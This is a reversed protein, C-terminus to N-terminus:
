VFPMYNGYGISIIRWGEMELFGSPLSMMYRTLM